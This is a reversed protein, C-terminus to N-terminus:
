NGTESSNLVRYHDAYLGFVVPVNIFAFLSVLRVMEQFTSSRPDVVQEPGVNFAVYLFRTDFLAALAEYAAIEVLLLPGLALALALALRASHGNSLGWVSLVRIKGEAITAPFAMLLRALLWVMLALGILAAGMLVAWDAAKLYSLAQVADIDAAEPNVGVSQMAADAVSLYLPGIFMAILSATLIALGFILLTVFLVRREEAGFKLGLWGDNSKSVSLRIVAAYFALGSVVAGISFMLGLVAGTAGMVDDSNIQVLVAIGLTFGTYPLAALLLTQINARTFAWAAKVSGLISINQNSM